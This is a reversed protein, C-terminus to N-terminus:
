KKDDGITVDEIDINELPKWRNIDVDIKESFLGAKGELQKLSRFTAHLFDDLDVHYYYQPGNNNISDKIVKYFKNKIIILESKNIQSLGSLLTIKNQILGVMRKRSESGRELSSTKFDNDIISLQTLLNALYNTQFNNNDEM